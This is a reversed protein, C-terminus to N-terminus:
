VFCSSAAAMHDRGSVGFLIFFILFNLVMLNPMFGLFESEPVVVVLVLPQAVMSGHIM